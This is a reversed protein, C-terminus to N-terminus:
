VWTMLVSRFRHQKDFFHRVLYKQGINLNDEKMKTERKIDKSKSRDSLM